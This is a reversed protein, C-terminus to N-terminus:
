KDSRRQLKRELSRIRRSDVNDSHKMKIVALEDSSSANATKNSPPKTIITDNTNPSTNKADEEKLLLALAKRYEHNALDRRGLKWMRDGNHELEKARRSAAEVKKQRVSRRHSPSLPQSPPSPLLPLLRPSLSRPSSSSGSESKNSDIDHVSVQHNDRRPNSPLQHPRPRDRTDRTRRRGRGDHDRNRLHDLRSSDRDQDPSIVVGDNDNKADKDDGDIRHLRSRLMAPFIPVMWPCVDDRVIPPPILLQQQSPRNTTTTTTRKSNAM